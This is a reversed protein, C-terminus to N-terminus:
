LGAGAGQPLSPVEFPAGLRLLNNPGSVFWSLVFPLLVLILVPWTRAGRNTPEAPADPRDGPRFCIEIVRMLYAAALLGGLLLTAGTMWKGQELAADLLMWKGLFGLGPPLGILTVAALALLGVPIPHQHVAGRLDDLRDSGCSRMLLGASLFAGAKALGHAWTLYLSGAWVGGAGAPGSGSLAFVLFLYGTQSVTSYALV